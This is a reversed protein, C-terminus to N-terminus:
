VSRVVFYPQQTLESGLGPYLGTEGNEEAATFYYEIPFQTQTYAAPVTAAFQAGQRAMEVTIYSEAQNVHRYHLMAQSMEAVAALTLPLEAGRTFRAPPAHHVALSVRRAHGLVAQIAAAVRPSAAAATSTDLLASLAAIDKDIAPLRDLWCGRLQPEPGVTIDTMYVSKGVHALAAWAARATRYQAISAELPAREKTIEYLQFLVGARFKAGFFEGLGAEIEIDVRARRYAPAGRGRASPEAQALAARGSAAFSEIWQAVDIPTYKGSSKGSLLEEAYENMSLFLEPDLPSANGFVRPRLADGYPSYHEADLLSQNTYIEPWYSNNAASPAYATTIVPLIRSVNGLADQMAEAGAGFQRRLVRQWVEPRTEPNYLPRGWILATYEYKQFDWRPTLSADAYACRSGPLGSGRRGKFSLPEQIEAGNSGCFRFARSYAAAFRPDGWLLLRQTGSWVRHVITYKRDETLLDGYGYRLFSRTGSSLAMLGTANEARPKEIKRIDAQHYTMGMHEAWFKPSINVHQGTGLAVDIMQRTMGKAHMDIPVQRGCTAVGDFVTKWFSFDGERVGSEGHIRFTLGSIEPVQQLLMRVAERCYPGHTSADLGEITYNAHPSDIWQYGHMWLGVYFELGRQASQQGIYQLMALNSDREDDPLQPVRVNYGPAKLLFPYAFLFYADTVGRLFDYGIGFALNFRNFRQAAVMDLYAPWFARDNYWPKDQVNSTFLRTISRVQNAPQDTTTAVAALAEIPSPGNEVVDALETLAYTLGRADRGSALVRRDGGHRLNVIGLSEPAAPVATGAERLMDRALESEAGAAILCLSEETADQPKAVRVADIGRARLTQALREVAWAAPRTAAVADAPDVAIAVRTVQKGIAKSSVGAGAAATGLVKLFRRRNWRSESM